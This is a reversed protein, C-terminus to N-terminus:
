KLGPLVQTKEIRVAKLAEPNLELLNLITPAIQTTTVSQNVTEHHIGPGWALIPVHRDQISNGGHEAIKSLSGAYVSGQQAIGIVDPVRLDGSPVGIFNAADSGAFIQKLGAQTFPKAIAVGNADSGIGVGNYALLFQKAFDTYLKSSDSLWLLVGDDDMAFAVLPLKPKPNHTDVAWADNLAKILNGDNIITLDARNQPSQGHKASLIIATNSKTKPNSNIADYMQKLSGDVFHLASQVVTGPVTGNNTYGGTQNPNSSEPTTSTNLKQATSVSQFNMGFIAPTGPNSKGSHDHGNIENIISLVKFTDYKQTNINNKTWDKSSALDIVSNIEPAFLDDIGYGSPGNLIEYAPHKDTWATRLGKAHAVEFITNVKLYEHPYVVKCTTPDVPLQSPDILINRVDDAGGALKLITTPVNKLDGPVFNPVPYLGSIGQTGDLLIQGSANTPEINEAYQVEAGVAVKHALCDAESTSLPLLGRNYSDDYYIGTTAPNGGTAQGVMGPFSDSPFPTHANNYETGKNVLTALTSSPYQQVYWDLDSQHLGDVSILLVHKIGSDSEQYGHEVDSNEQQFDHESPTASVATVSLAMSIALSLLTQKLKM